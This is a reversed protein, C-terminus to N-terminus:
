SLNTAVSVCVSPWQPDVIKGVDEIQTLIHRSCQMNTLIAQSSAEFLLSKNEELLLLHLSYGGIVCGYGLIVCGYGLIVCGYGGFLVVMGWLSSWVGLYCLWVVWIFCGYGGFLVVMGGFLVVMGGFLVVM